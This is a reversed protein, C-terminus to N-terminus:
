RANQREKKMDLGDMVEELVEITDPNINWLIEDVTIATLIWNAVEMRGRADLNAVQELAVEFPDPPLEHGCTTCHKPTMADGKRNM